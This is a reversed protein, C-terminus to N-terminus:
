NLLGKQAGGFIRKGHKSIKDKGTPTQEIILNWFKSFKTELSSLRDEFERTSAPSLKLIQEKLFQIDKKTDSFVLTLAENKTEINRIKDDCIKIKELNFM